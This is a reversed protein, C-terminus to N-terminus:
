KLNGRKEATLSLFPTKKQILILSLINIEFINHCNQIVRKLRLIYKVDYMEEFTLILSDNSQSKIIVDYAIGQDTAIVGINHFDLGFRYEKKFNFPQDNIILFRATDIM